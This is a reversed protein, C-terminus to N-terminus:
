LIEMLINYLLRKVPMAVLYLVAGCLVLRVLMKYQVDKGIAIGPLVELVFRNNFNLYLLKLCLLLFALLIFLLAFGSVIAKALKDDARIFGDVACVLLFVKIARFLRNM